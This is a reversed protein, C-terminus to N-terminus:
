LGQKMFQIIEKEDSFLDYDGTLQGDYHYIVGHEENNKLARLLKQSGNEAIYKAFARVRPTRFMASDCPFDDCAWCGELGKSKCCHYNKCIENNQCGERRCGTCNQNESCVCCALGCFAVGKEEDFFKKVPREYYGLEPHFTKAPVFGYKKLLLIREPTNSVKMKISKIQFDRIFHLVALRIFEEIYNEKDYETAIDIRLVGYEGGFVEITGVANNCNRPIVAFRVYRHERYERLWFMICDTMEEITTFYFNNTCHDANMKSVARKDSYCVLLARADEPRVLRLKFSTTEYIPCEEYIHVKTM